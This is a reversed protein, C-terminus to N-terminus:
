ISPRISTRTTGSPAIPQVATYGIDTHSSPAVYVRWKRQPMIRVTATKARRGLTATIKVDLPGAHRPRRNGRPDLRICPAASLSDRQGAGAAERPAAGRRHAPPWWPVDVMACAPWRPSHLLADAPRHRKPDGGAADRRAPRALLTVADYQVWSGESCGPPDRQGGEEAAGRPRDIELKQPKGTRPDRLSADGGGPSSFRAARQRRHWWTSRPFVTRCTPSEIRLTFVGRPEDPLNFGITWPSGMPRPGSTTPGPQIFPWGAGTAAASRPVRGAGGFAKAYAEYNGAFAFEAYSHDPTGIQWVVRQEALAVSALLSFLVAILSRM